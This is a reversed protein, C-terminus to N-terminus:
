FARGCEPLYLLRYGNERLARGLALSVASVDTGEPLASADFIEQGPRTGWPVGVTERFLEWVERRVRINRIDLAEADQHLAARNMYGGFRRHLGQYYVSGDEKIRGGCIRNDRFLPGGVAGVDPRAAFLDGAYELRYFGFHVTDAARAHWGNRDAFDQLARRGAEYAYPKSQPNSATSAGHCRWHYLVRAVHLIADERGALEGAARLTLDYDQAGEYEGRLLLKQMLNREMVLFHCIYNNSLLLDLNFDEKFNPEYYVKADRDCKDEDSYIVKTEKGDKERRSVAEAIWFLADPALLDDHDLLGIYDGSAQRIGDNTNKAIGGNEPLRIYRIRSDTIAAAAREVSDDETADALILEWRRYTQRCVSDIMDKLYAPSTRYCPVVISITRPFEMESCAAQQRALEEESPPVFRYLPQGHAALREWIVYYTNKIGNRKLFYITKRLNDGNIMGAM